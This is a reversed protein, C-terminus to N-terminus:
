LGTWQARAVPALALCGLVVVAFFSLTLTKFQILPNMSDKREKERHTSWAVAPRFLPFFVGLSPKRQGVGSESENLSAWNPFFRPASDLCNGALAFRRNWNSFRKM